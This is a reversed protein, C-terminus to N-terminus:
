FTIYTFLYGGIMPDLDDGFYDGPMWYGATGGVTITKRFTYTTLLAFEMGMDSDVGDPVWDRSYLFVDGRLMFPGQHFALNGNIVNLNTSMMDFPAVLSFGYATTMLHAPGFGPWWKYFGFTYPGWIPSEYAENEDDPLPNGLTDYEIENGSLM